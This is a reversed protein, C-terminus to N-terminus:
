EDENQIRDMFLAELRNTKTRMSHIELGNATLWAFVENLTTTNDVQLEFNNADILLAPFQDPIPFTQIPKITTFVFTQVNMTALLQQISTHEIIKGHHIIAVNKCLQEAEELYHTTLIITTGQKNTEKLFEWVSRRIEIDVGATPEDLILMAPEHMLARAIMLRRKMGGSLFRAAQNKKDAIGLQELLVELRQKAKNRPIGYFGAQNLLIQECTEFINL